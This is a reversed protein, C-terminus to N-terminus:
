PDGIVSELIDIVDGAVNSVDLMLWQSGDPDTILNEQGNIANLFVGQSKPLAPLDWCFCFNISLRDAHAPQEDILYLGGFDNDQPNNV